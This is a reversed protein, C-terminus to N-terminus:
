GPCSPRRDTKTSHWGRTPTLLVVGDPHENPIQFGDPVVVQGAGDCGMTANTYILGPYAGVMSWEDRRNFGAALIKVLVQDSTPKPTPVDRVAAINRQGKKPEGSPRELQLAKMNTKVGSPFSTTPHTPAAPSPQALIGTDPTANTTTKDVSPSGDLADFYREIATRVVDIVDQRRHNSPLQSLSHPFPLTLTLLTLLIFASTSSLLPVPSPVHASQISKRRRWKAPFASFFIASLDALGAIM